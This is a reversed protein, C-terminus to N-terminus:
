TMMRLIETGLSAIRSEKKLSAEIAWATLRTDDKPMHDGKDHEVLRALFQWDRLTAAIFHQPELPAKDCKLRSVHGFMNPECSCSGLNLFSRLADFSNAAIAEGIGLNFLETSDAGFGPYIDGLLELKKVKSPTFPSQCLVRPIYSIEPTKHAPVRHVHPFSWHRVWEHTRPIPSSRLCTCKSSTYTWRLMTFRRHPDGSLHITENGDDRFKLIRSYIAHHGEDAPSPWQHQVMQKLYLIACHKFFASTFWRCTLIQNRCKQWEQDSLKCQTARYKGLGRHSCPKSFAQITLNEYDRRGFVQGLFLSARPLNIELCYSFIQQLIEVPLEELKPATKIPKQQVTLTKSTRPRKSKRADKEASNEAGVFPTSSDLEMFRTPTSSGSRTESRAKPIQVRGYRRGRVRIPTMTSKKWLSCRLWLPEGRSRCHPGHLRRLFAGSILFQRSYAQFSTDTYM